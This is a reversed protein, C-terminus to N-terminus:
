CFGLCSFLVLLFLFLGDNTKLQSVKEADQKSCKQLLELGQGWSDRGEDAM